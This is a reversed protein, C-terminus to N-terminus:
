FLSIEKKLVDLQMRSKMRLEEIKEFSVPPISQIITYDSYPKVIYEAGLISSLAAFKDSVDIGLVPKGMMASLIVGHYRLSIIMDCQSIADIVQDPTTYPHYTIDKKGIFHKKALQYERDLKRMSIVHTECEFQSSLDAIMDDNLEYGSQGLERLIIGLKKREKPIRYPMDLSFVLDPYVDIPTIHALAKQSEHDRVSIFSALKSFRKLHLTTNENMNTQNHVGIGCVFTPRELLKFDLYHPKSQKPDILDGGGIVFAEYDTVDFDKKLEIHNIKEFHYPYLFTNFVRNFLEDGCNQFKFFGINGIRKPFIEKILKPKPPMKYLDNNHFKPKKFWSDLRKKVFVGKHPACLISKKEENLIFASFPICCIISTIIPNPLKINAYDNLLNYNNLYELYQFVNQDHKGAAAAWIDIFGPDYQPLVVIDYHDFVKTNEIQWGMDTYVGGYEYLAVFRVINSAFCFYDNNVYYDFIHKGYNFNLEHISKVCVSPFTKKYFDVNENVWFIHTWSPMSAVFSTYGDILDQPLITNKDKAGTIWVKHTIHPISKKFSPSQNIHVIDKKLIHSMFCKLNPHLNMTFKKAHSHTHIAIGEDNIYCNDEYFKQRVVKKPINCESTKEISFFLPANGKFTQESLPVIKLFNDESTRETPMLTQSFNGESTREVPVRSTHEFANIYMLLLSM